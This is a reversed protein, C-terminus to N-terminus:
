HVPIYLIEGDENERALYELVGDFGISVWGKELLEAKTKDM